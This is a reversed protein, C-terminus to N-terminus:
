RVTGLALPLVASAGAARIARTAVTLTWGSDILDDLLLVPRSPVEGDLRFRRLVAAVRQASNASGQGPQVSSDAISFRGVVPVQLYRSLGEAFDHTLTPRTAAEVYVIGAPSAPWEARWDRLGEIVATVLPVPVPGDPAGPRFLDRLHQGHGLDTLRAVARGEEAADTARIKGTLDLGLNALATPWMKRPPIAM